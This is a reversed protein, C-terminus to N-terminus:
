SSYLFYFLVKRFKLCEYVCGFLLYLSWFIFIFLSVVLRSLLFSMRYLCLQHDVFFSLYKVFWSMMLFSSLMIIGNVLVFLRLCWWLYFINKIPYKPHSFSKGVTFYLRGIFFFLFAFNASSSFSYLLFWELSRIIISCVM